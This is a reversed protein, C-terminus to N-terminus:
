TQTSAPPEEDRRHQLHERAADIGADATKDIVKDRITGGVDSLATVVVGGVGVSGAALEASTLNGKEGM